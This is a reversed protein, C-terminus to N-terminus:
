IHNQVNTDTELRTYLDGGYVLLFESVLGDNDFYYYQTSMRGAATKSYKPWTSTIFGSRDKMREFANDHEETIKTLAIKYM